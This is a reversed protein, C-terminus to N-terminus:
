GVDPKWNEKAKRSSQRGAKRTGDKDKESKAEEENTRLMYQSQNKAKKKM